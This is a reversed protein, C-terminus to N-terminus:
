RTMELSFRRIASSSSSSSSDTGRNGIYVPINEIFNRPSKSDKVYLPAIDPKNKGLIMTKNSNIYKKQMKKNAYGVIYGKIDQKLFDQKYKVIAEDFDMKEYKSQDNFFKLDKPVFMVQFVIPEIKEHVNNKNLIVKRELLRNLDKSYKEGSSKVEINFKKKENVEFKLDYKDSHEFNDNRIRDYEKLYNKSEKSELLIFKKVMNKALDGLFINSFRSFDSRQKYSDITYNLKLKATKFAWDIQKQNDILDMQYFEHNKKNTKVWKM